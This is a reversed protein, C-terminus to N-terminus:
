FARVFNPISVVKALKNVARSSTALGPYDTEYDAISNCLHGYYGLEKRHKDIFRLSFYIFFYELIFNLHMYASTLPYNEMHGRKGVFGLTWYQLTTSLCTQLKHKGAPMNRM